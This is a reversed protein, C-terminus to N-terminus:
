ETDMSRYEALWERNSLGKGKTRTIGHFWCWIKGQNSANTERIVQDIKGLDVTRFQSMLDYMIRACERRETLCQKDQHASFEQYDAIRDSFGKLKLALDHDIGSLALAELEPSVEMM